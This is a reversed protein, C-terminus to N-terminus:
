EESVFRLAAAQIEDETAPPEFNYLTKIALTYPLFFVPDLRFFLAFSLSILPYILRRGKAGAGLLSRKVRSFLM